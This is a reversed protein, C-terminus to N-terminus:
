GNYNVYLLSVMSIRDPLMKKGLLRPEPGLVAFEVGM